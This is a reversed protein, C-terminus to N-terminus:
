LGLSVQTHISVKLGALPSEQPAALPQRVRAAHLSSQATAPTPLTRPLPQIPLLFFPTSFGFTRVQAKGPWPTRRFARSPTGAELETEQKTGWFQTGRAAKETHLTPPAKGIATSLIQPSTPELSQSNCYLTHCEQSKGKRPFTDRNQHM